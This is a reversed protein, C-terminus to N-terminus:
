LMDLAGQLEGAAHTDGVRTAAAVGDRYAQRADATRGAQELVQGRQYYAYCYGSDAAIARDLFRLAEELAGAKKHELGLAYLLFADNPNKELMSQLQQLREMHRMTSQITLEALTHDNWKM